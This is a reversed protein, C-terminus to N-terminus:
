SSEQNTFQVQIPLSQLHAGSVQNSLYGHTERLTTVRTVPNGEPSWPFMNLQKLFYKAAVLDPAELGHCIQGAQHTEGTWTGSNYQQLSEWQFLIGSGAGCVLQSEQTAGEVAAQVLHM